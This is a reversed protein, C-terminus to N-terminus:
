KLAGHDGKTFSLGTYKYNLLGKTLDEVTMGRQAEIEIKKARVEQAKERVTKEEIRIEDLRSQEMRNKSQLTQVTHQLKIQKEELKKRQESIGGSGGSDGSGQAANDAASAAVGREYQLSKLQRLLSDIKTQESAETSKLEAILTDAKHKNTEVYQDLRRRSTAIRDVFTSTFGGTYSSMTATSPMTQNTSYHKLLLYHRATIFTTINIAGLWFFLTKQHKYTM